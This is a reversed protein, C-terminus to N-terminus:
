VSSRGRESHSVWATHIPWLLTGFAPLLIDGDNPCVAVYFDCYDWALDSDRGCTNVFLNVYLALNLVPRVGATGLGAEVIEPDQQCGGHVDSVASYYYSYTDSSIKHGM